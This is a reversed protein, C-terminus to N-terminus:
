RIYMIRKIKYLNNKTLIRVFYIGSSVKEDPHWRIAIRGGTSFNDDFKEVIHGQIDYIAIETRPSAFDQTEVNKTKVNQM